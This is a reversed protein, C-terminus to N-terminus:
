RADDGSLTALQRDIEAVFDRFQTRAARRNLRGLWALFAAVIAAYAFNGATPGNAAFNLGVVGIGCPALYWIWVQELLRAQALMADRQRRLYDVVPLDTRADPMRRRVRWFRWPVYLTWATLWASFFMSWWKEGLGARLSMYGFIPALVLAVGSELLDRRQVAARLRRERARVDDILRPDVTAQAGAEAHQWRQRLTNWNM